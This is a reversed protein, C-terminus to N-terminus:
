RVCSHVFKTSTKKNEGPDTGVNTPYLVHPRFKPLSFTPIKPSLPQGKYMDASTSLAEHSQKMHTELVAQIM